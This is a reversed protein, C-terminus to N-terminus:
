YKSPSKPIIQLHITNGLAFQKKYEETDVCDKWKEHNKFVTFKHRVGDIKVGEKLAPTSVGPTTKRWSMVSSKFGIANLMDILLGNYLIELGPTDDINFLIEDVVDEARTQSAEIIEGLLETRNDMSEVGTADIDYLLHYRLAAIGPGPRLPDGILRHLELGRENGMRKGKGAFIMVRDGKEVLQRIHNNTVIHLTRSQINRPKSYLGRIEQTTDRVLAKFRETTMLDDIEAWERVLHGTYATNDTDRLNVKGGSFDGVCVGIAKAFLSKGAGQDGIIGIALPLHGVPNQVKYAALKILKDKASPTDPCLNDILDYFWKVDGQKPEALLDFRFTNILWCSREDDYVHVQDKDPLVDTYKADLRYDSNLYQQHGFRIAQGRSSFPDIMQCNKALTRDATSADVEVYVQKDTDFFKGTSEVYIYRQWEICKQIYPNDDWRTASRLHELIAGKGKAQLYDDWGWKSNGDDCPPPYAIYLEPNYKLLDYCLRNISIQTRPNFEQDNDWAIIFRKTTKSAVKALLAPIIPSHKDSMRYNDVGSVAIADIGDQGLRLANFAGEVLMVDHPESNAPLVSQPCTYVENLARKMGLYKGKFQKADQVPPLLDPNSDRLLRARFQNSEPNGNAPFALACSYGAKKAPFVANNGGLLANLDEMSAIVRVGAKDLTDALLGRKSLYNGALVMPSSPMPVVNQFAM